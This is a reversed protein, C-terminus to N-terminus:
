LISSVIVEGLSIGSNGFRPWIVTDEIYYSDGSLVKNIVGHDSIM